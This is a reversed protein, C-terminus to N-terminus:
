DEGCNCDGTGFCYKAGCRPCGTHLECGLDDICQYYELTGVPGGFQMAVATTSWGKDLLIMAAEKETPTM